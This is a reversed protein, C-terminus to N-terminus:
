AIHAHGAPRCLAEREPAAVVPTTVGRCQEVYARQTVGRAKMGAKDAQWEPKCAKATKSGDTTAQSGYALASLAFGLGWSGQLVGSMFGRSRAPWSEGIMQRPMQQKRDNSIPELGIAKAIEVM